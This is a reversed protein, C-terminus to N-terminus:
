DRRLLKEAEAVVDLAAPEASAQRAMQELAEACGLAFTAPTMGEPPTVHLLWDPTGGTLDLDVVARARGEQVPPLWGLDVLDQGTMPKAVM